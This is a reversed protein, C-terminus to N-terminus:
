RRGYAGSVGFCLGSHWVIMRTEFIWISIPLKSGAPNHILCSVISNVYHTWDSLNDGLWKGVKSGAGAFTSRTIVFTRLGPRRALLAEHTKVSMMTGYLNHADYETIGGYHVIDTDITRDSLGNTAVDISYPPSLLNQDTSSQNADLILDRVPLPAVQAREM